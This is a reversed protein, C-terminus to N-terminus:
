ISLNRMMDFLEDQHDIIARVEERGERYMRQYETEDNEQVQPTGPADDASLDVVQPEDETQAEALVTQPTTPGNTREANNQQNGLVENYADHQLNIYRETRCRGRHNILNSHFFGDIDSDNAVIPNYTAFQSCVPCPVRRRESARQAVLRADVWAFTAGGFMNVIDKIEGDDVTVHTFSQRCVPCTPQEHGNAIQYSLYDQFCLEGICMNPPHVCSCNPSCMRMDQKTCILCSKETKEEETNEEIKNSDKNDGISLNSLNIIKEIKIEQEGDKDSTITSIEGSKKEVNLISGVISTSNTSSWLASSHRASSHRASSNMWIFGSQITVGSQSVASKVTKCDDLTDDIAFTIDEIIKENLEEQVVDSRSYIRSASYRFENMTMMDGNTKMVVPIQSPKSKLGVILSNLKSEMEELQKMAEGSAKPKEKEEKCPFSIATYNPNKNFYRNFLM